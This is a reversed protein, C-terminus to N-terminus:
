RATIRVDLTQEIIKIAQQLSDTTFDGTLHKSMDSAHLDVGGNCESLRRLVEPLPTNVFHLQHTAWAADNVDYGSIVEPKKDGSALRAQKGKVLLVGEQSDRASFFVKGSTVMVEVEGQNREDVMFQTGLVRVHGREGNVDFPHQEDHKVQFYACGEMEVKRCNDERYSVSSHPSLTVQTGDPLHCAMIESGSAHTITKPQLLTYAGMALLILLSAAVAMWRYRGLRVERAKPMEEFGSTSSALRAKVKRLARQTDLKGSQFYRLVFGQERNNAKM